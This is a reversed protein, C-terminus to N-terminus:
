GQVLGVIEHRREESRELKIRFRNQCAYCETNASNITDNSRRNKSQDSLFSESLPGGGSTEVM